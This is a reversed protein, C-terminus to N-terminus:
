IYSGTLFYFAKQSDESTTATQYEDRLRIRWREELDLRMAEERLEYRERCVFVMQSEKVFTFQQLFTKPLSKSCNYIVLGAYTKNLMCKLPSPEREIDDKGHLVCVNVHKGLDLYGGIVLVPLDPNDVALPFLTDGSMSLYTQLVLHANAKIVKMTEMDPPVVLRSSPSSNFNDAGRWTTRTTVKAMFSFQELRGFPINHRILKLQFDIEEGSYVHTSLSINGTVKVNLFVCSHVFTRLFSPLNSEEQGSSWPRVGILGVESISKNSELSLLLELLSSTDRLPSMVSDSNRRGKKEEVEEEEESDSSDPAVQKGLKQWMVLNDNMMLVFPWVADSSGENKLRKVENKYNQTAFSQMINKVAADSSEDFDDPLVFFVHNPWNKKYQQMEASRIFTIHLHDTEEMTHFLNLLGEEDGSSSLMLIPTKVCCGTLVTSDETPIFPENYQSFVVNTINTSGEEFIFHKTHIPPIVVLLNVSRHDSGVNDLQYTSVQSANNAIGERYFRCMDCHHFTDYAATKALIVLADVSGEDKARSLVQEEMEDEITCVHPLSFVDYKTDLFGPVFKTSRLIELVSLERTQQNATYSIRNDYVDVRKLRVLMRHLLQAFHLYAGTKGAQPPGSLLLCRPHYKDKDSDENDKDEHDIQEESGKASLNKDSGHYGRGVTFLRRLDEDSKEESPSPPSSTPGPTTLVRRVPRADTWRRYHRSMRDPKSTTLIPRDSRVWRTNPDSNLHVLTPTTGSESQLLQWLPKSVLLIPLPYKSSFHTSTDAHHKVHDKSLCAECKESNEKSHWGDPDTKSPDAKEVKELSQDKLLHMRRQSLYTTGVGTRLNNMVVPKGSIALHTGANVSLYCAVSGIESEITSRHFSSHNFVNFDAYKLSRPFTEGARDEGSLILICPLDLLDELCQPKWKSASEEKWGRKRRWMRMRDLFFDGIQLEQDGDDYIVDFRYEFGLSNRTKLLVEHFYKGMYKSPIRIMLMYGSGDPNRLPSEVVDNVMRIISMVAYPEAPKIGGAVMLSAQYLRLLVFGQVVSYSIDNLRNAKPVAIDFTEEHRILAYQQNWRTSECFEKTGFYIMDQDNIMICKEDMNKMVASTRRADTWYVENDPDIFSKRTQFMYPVATVFVPLVNPSEFVEKLNPLVDPMGQPLSYRQAQDFILLFLTDHSSQCNHVFSKWRSVSEPWDSYTIVYKGGVKFNSSVDETELGLYNLVGSECLRKVTLYYLSITPPVVILIEVKLYSTLDLIEPNEAINRVQSLLQNAMAYQNAFIGKTHPPVASIPAVTPKYEQAQSHRIRMGAYANFPVYVMNERADEFMTILLNLAESTQHFQKKLRMLDTEFQLRANQPRNNISQMIHNIGLCEAIIKAHSIGTVLVGFETPGNPPTSLIIVFNPILLKKNSVASMYFTDHIWRLAKYFGNQFSNTSTIAKVRGNSASCQLNVMLSLQLPNQILYKGISHGQNMSGHIEIKAKSLMLEIHEKSISTDDLSCLHQTTLIIAAQLTLSSGSHDRNQVNAEKKIQVVLDSDKVSISQDPPDASSNWGMNVLMNAASQEVNSHNQTTVANANCSEVNSTNATGHMFTDPWEFCDVLLDSIIIDNVSTPLKCPNHQCLLLVPRVGCISSVPLKFALDADAETTHDDDNEETEVDQPDSGISMKVSTNADTIKQEEDLMLKVKKLVPERDSTIDTSVIIPPQYLEQSAITISPVVAPTRGLLHLNHAPVSRKRTETGKWPILPGRGFKGDQNKAIYYKLHKQKKPQTALKLNIHTSYETFYRFGTAGCGICNGSFGLMTITNPDGPLYRRDVVTVLTIGPLMPSKAGVLCFGDPVHISNLKESLESLRLEGGNQCKGCNLRPTHEHLSAAAAASTMQRVEAVDEPGLNSNDNEGVVHSLNATAPAPISVFPSYQSFAYIVGKHLGQSSVTRNLSREVGPYLVPQVAIPKSPVLNKPMVAPLVDPQIVGAAQSAFGLGTTSALSKTLYNSPTIQSVAVSAPAVPQFTTLLPTQQLTSTPHIYEDDM